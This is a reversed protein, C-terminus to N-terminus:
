GRKDRFCIERTLLWFLEPSFDEPRQKLDFNEININNKNFYSKLIKQVQKRRHQFFIKVVKSLKSKLEIPADERPTFCLVSSWVKPPPYFVNPSVHFLLKPCAFSQLWVSLAGYTKTGPKAIIREGVEKQVMFVAKKYSFVSSLIDWLLPSAVNYPLNGFLKLCSISNLKEWRFKLADINVLDLNPFEQKLSFVLKKDKEFAIIRHFDYSFVIKTLAGQGPGIELLTDKSDIDLSRVIKHCINQDRLFHQGLSKKPYNIRM